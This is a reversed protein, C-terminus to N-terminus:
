TMDLPVGVGEAPDSPEPELLGVAIAGEVETEVEGTVELPDKDGEVESSDLELLLGLKRVLLVCAGEPLGTDTEDGSLVSAGEGALNIVSLEFM